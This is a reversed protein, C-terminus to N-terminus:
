CNLLAVLYFALLLFVIMSINSIYFAIPSQVIKDPIAQYLLQNAIGSKCQIIFNKLILAFLTTIGAFLFYVMVIFYNHNRIGVCNNLWPCYHDM